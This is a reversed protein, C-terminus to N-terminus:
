RPQGSKAGGGRVFTLAQPVGPSRGGLFQAVSETFSYPPLDHTPLALERVRLDDLADLLDLAAGRARGDSAALAHAQLRHRAPASLVAAHAHAVGLLLASEFLLISLQSPQDRLLRQVDIGELQSQLSSVMTEVASLNRPDSM